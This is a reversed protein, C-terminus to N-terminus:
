GNFLYNINDVTVRLVDCPTLNTIARCCRCYPPAGRTNYVSVANVSKNVGQGLTRSILKSVVTYCFCHCATDPPTSTVPINLTEDLMTPEPVRAAPAVVILPLVAIVPAVSIVPSKSTSEM